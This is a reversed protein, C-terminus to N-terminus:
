DGTQQELTRHISRGEGSRPPALPPTKVEGSCADRIQELVWEMRTRIHDNSFRLVRIGHRMLIEDREADAEADHIPGDVEVVLAAAHCYFDVIFGDIVQQRRFHLGSIQNNRLRRWLMREEPTMSRRLEKARAIKGEDIRQGVIINEPHTPRDNIPL